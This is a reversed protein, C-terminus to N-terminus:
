LRLQWFLTHVHEGHQMPAPATHLATMATPDLPQLCKEGVMLQDNRAFLQGTQPDRSLAGPFAEFFVYLAPAGDDIRFLELLRMVTSVGDIVMSVWQGQSLDYESYQVGSLWTVQVSSDPGSMTVWQIECMADILSSEGSQVTESFKEVAILKLKHAFTGEKLEVARRTAVKVAMSHLLSKYNSHRGAQIFVQNEAEFRFCSRFRAPGWLLCDIPLHQAFHFNPVWLDYYEPISLFLTQMRYITADLRRVDELSFRRQILMTFYEVHLCWCRWLPGEWADDPVFRGLIAPSHVMFVLMDHATMGGYTMSSQALGNNLVISSEAMPQPHCGPPWPHDRIAANLEALSMWKKKKIAVASFGLLHKTCNGECEAHMYDIAAGWIQFGSLLLSSEFNNIGLRQMHAARERPPLEETEQRQKELLENTRLDWVQLHGRQHLLRELSLMDADPCTGDMRWPLFSNACRLPTARPNNPDVQMAMCLRCPCITSPGVAMKFHGLLEAAAPNDALLIPTWGQVPMDVFPPSGLAREPNPVQLTFGARHREMSAGYSTSPKSPDAAAGCLVLSAGYRKLDENKCLGVLMVNYLTTRHEPELNILAAYFLDVRSNNKFPGIPKSITAGDGYLMYGLRAPSGDVWPAGLGAHAKFGLGHTVDSLYFVGEEYGDDQWRKCSSLVDSLVDSNYCMLNQLQQELPLDYMVDEEIIEKVRGDPLGHTVARRGLLREVPAVMPLDRAAIETHMTRVSALAEQVPRVVDALKEVEPMHTFRRKISESVQAILEGLMAKAQDVVPEPAHHFVRMRTCREVITSRAAQREVTDLDAASTSPRAAHSHPATAAAAAAAEATAAPGNRSADNARGCAARHVKYGHLSKCAKGCACVITSDM